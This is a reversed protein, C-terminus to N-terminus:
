VWGADVIFSQATIMRSDDAALFLIMRAIDDGHLRGPMLQNRDM